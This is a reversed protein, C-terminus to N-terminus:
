ETCLESPNVTVHKIGRHHWTFTVHVKRDRSEMVSPYCYEGSNDSELDGARKWTRGDESVALSLTQRGATKTEGGRTPNYVLLHRGDHMTVADIASNPNLLETPKIESWTKGGDNSDTTANIGQSTRCLARLSGNNLQLLTPQIAGMIKPGCITETRTWQDTLHGDRMAVSEFHLQWGNSESSSGCLLTADDDILIPKSRVPGVFGDPLRHRGGFTRGADSSFMVEGWWDGPHSGVKLFLILPADGPPQFLVPNWCRQPAGQPSTGSAILVPTNWVEGDHRSLWISSDSKDAEQGAVWAALLGDDTECITSTHSHRFHDAAAILTDGLFGPFKSPQNM